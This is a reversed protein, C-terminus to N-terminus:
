GWVSGACPLSYWLSSNQRYDPVRSHCTQVVRGWLRVNWSTSVLTISIQLNLTAHPPPPIHVHSCPVKKDLKILTILFYSVLPLIKWGIWKFYQGQAHPLM